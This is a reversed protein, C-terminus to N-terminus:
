GPLEVLNRIFSVFVNLVTLRKEEEQNILTKSKSKSKSKMKKEMGLMNSDIIRVDSGNNEEVTKKYYLSIPMQKDREELHQNEKISNM